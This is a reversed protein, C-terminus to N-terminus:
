IGSNSRSTHSKKERVYARLENELTALGLNRMHLLRRGKLLERRRLSSGDFFKPTTLKPPALGRYEYELIRFLQEPTLPANHVVSVRRGLKPHSFASSLGITLSAPILLRYVDREIEPLKGEALMEYFFNVLTNRNGAVGFVQPLCFVWNRKSAKIVRKETLYKHRYYRNNALPKAGLSGFYIVPSGIRLAKTLLINERLYASFNVESSNSVGAAVIVGNRLSKPTLKFQSALLGRGFVLAGGITRRARLTSSM